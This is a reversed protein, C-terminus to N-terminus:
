YFNWEEVCNNINGVNVLNINQGEIQKGGLAEWKGPSIYFYLKMACIHNEESIIHRNFEYVILLFSM